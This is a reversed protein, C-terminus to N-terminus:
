EVPVLEDAFLSDALAWAIRELREGCFEDKITTTWDLWLEATNAL